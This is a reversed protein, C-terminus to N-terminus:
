EYIVKRDIDVILGDVLYFLPDCDQVRHEIRLAQPFIPCTLYNGRKHLGFTIYNRSENRVKLYSSATKKCKKNFGNVLM